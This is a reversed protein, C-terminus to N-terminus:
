ESHYYYYYYNNYNHDIDIFHKFKYKAFTRLQMKTLKTKRKDVCSNRLKVSQHRFGENPNKKMTPAELNGKDSSRSRWIVSLM